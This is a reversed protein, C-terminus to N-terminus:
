SHSMLDIIYQQIISVSVIAATETRLINTNLFILKAGDSVLSDVEKDSFGGEPGIAIYIPAKADESFLNEVTSFISLPNEEPIQHLVLLRTPHKVTKTLDKIDVSPNIHTMVPSSSQQLAEKIVSEYRDIKSMEKKSIDAICFQSILPTISTIGMETCQRIIQDMKKGKPLGQFLHIEPFFGRYASLTDTSSEWEGEIKRSIATLSNNTIISITMEYFSGISDRSTFNDGVKLRLVKVLYHFDKGTLSIEKEGQFTHPLIFVRM